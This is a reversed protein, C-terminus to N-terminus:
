HAREIKGAYIRNDTKMQYIYLGDPLSPNEWKIHNTGQNIWGDFVVDILQGQLNFISIKIRENIPTSIAFNANDAFPNPFCNVASISTKDIDYTPVLVQGAELKICDYMLGGRSGVSTMRFKVTNLGHILESAPFTLTKVQHRGGLVASRYVAGDNGFSWATKKIDNIYVEIGPNNSTGAISVTLTANGTYTQDCNFSITWTGTKTQAYYWDRDPASTGIAYNLDVPPLEYLGYARLSDSISFGKTLRDNDGIQWLKNEFKSPTWNLTGLDVETGSVSIGNKTFLDTIEGKTAYAYFTYEGSRVHSISFKGLSDTKSWFMYDKGQDYIEVDPQALVVQIKDPSLGFPLNIQGAVTTRELPFLDNALWQYPWQSKQLSAQKKADEIMENHTGGSNVYIFFPGYIKADGNAYNQAAAGFHEGQLMQLVLPTKNTTHVTLEQKMPGGNMFENSPVIAWIGENDSMIGHISDEVIYNAWDYKTYVSGDPMQYTADMIPNDNVAIMDAVSPLFGQMRDTVYGYTFLSPSVRYVVRMERLRIETSTGKLIIYCYIGSIGKLMVYAQEIMLTGSTNSYIVEAYDDTQKEIRIGDPSLEKYSDQDNYSFYFRGGNGADILDKGKYIFSNVQGKSNITLSIIGNNMSAIRSSSNVSVTVNEQATLATVCLLGWSILIYLRNMAIYKYLHNLHLFVFHIQPPLKL